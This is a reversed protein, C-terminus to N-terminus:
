IYISYLIYLTFLLNIFVLHRFMNSFTYFCLSSKLPCVRIFFQWLWWYGFSIRYSEVIIRFEWVFFSNWYYLWELSIKQLLVLCESQSLFHKPWLIELLPRSPTTSGMLWFIVLDRGILTGEVLKKYWPLARINSSM